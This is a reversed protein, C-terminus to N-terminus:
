VPKEIPNNIARALLERRTALFDQFRDLKWLARDMPVCQAELREPRKNAVEALYQDPARNSIKRNPLM